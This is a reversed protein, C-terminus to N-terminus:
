CGGLTACCSSIARLLDRLVVATDVLNVASSGARVISDSLCPINLLIAHVLAHLVQREFERKQLEASGNERMPQDWYHLPAAVVVEPVVQVRVAEIAALVESRTTAVAAGVARRQLGRLLAELAKGIGGTASACQHALFDQLGPTPLLTSRMLSREEQPVYQTACCKSCTM